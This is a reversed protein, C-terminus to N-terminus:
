KEYLDIYFSSGNINYKNISPSALIIYLSDIVNYNNLYVNYVGITLNILIINNVNFFYQYFILRSSGNM